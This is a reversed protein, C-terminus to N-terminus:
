VGPKNMINLLRAANTGCIYEVDKNPLGSKSLEEVYRAPKILPFDSGFLIKEKGVIQVAIRYIEPDYLFPSAATDFYVNNLTKKVEQKLLNFFFIGGGWHSLVIKNEPFEKVLSYIQAPTIDTKGPYMHGVPENTHILIPLNNRRCIEMVPELIKRHMEDIGTQYFAIEGVGSLGGKLCRETEAAAEKNLPDFCCLGKLRAPYQAVAEMIYDNHKKFTDSNNWPFGFIVSVDVGHEDMSAVIENVGAFKAKSSAYLLKFAPESSFHKDRNEHIAKPFIHTHFDIIMM